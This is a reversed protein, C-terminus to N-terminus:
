RDGGQGVHQWKRATHRWNRGYMTMMVAIGALVILAFSRMTGQATLLSYAEIAALGAAGITAIIESTTWDERHEPLTSATERTM